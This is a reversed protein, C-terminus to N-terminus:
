LAWLDVTNGLLAMNACELIQEVDANAAPDMSAM